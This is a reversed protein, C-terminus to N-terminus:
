LSQELIQHLPMREISAVCAPMLVAYPRHNNRPDTGDTSAFYVEDRWIFYEGPQLEDIGAGRRLPRGDEAVAGDPMSLACAALRALTSRSRFKRHVGHPEMREPPVAFWALPVGLADGRRRLVADDANLVLHSRADIARAVVLKAEALGDLDDIGYEGFHDASVNTVLAVDARDVALGRRLLGGRAVELVAAHVRADRLM